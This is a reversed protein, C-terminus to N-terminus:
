AGKTSGALLLQIAEFEVPKVLHHDIGAAASRQRDAEQGWGSLAVLTTEHGEPQERIRRAVEYGDIDPMGIDLLILSPRYKRVAELAPIGGHVVQVDAGMCKLLTGLTDAADRNDDVVLVRRQRIAVSHRTGEGSGAESDQRTPLPLRVVFESGTGPGASVVDVSGGHLGVLSRALTLGIGLGGQTRAQATDLQAFMDFVRAQMDLPIGMGNDRVSVIATAGERRVSLGIRGGEATYKAANNLLNTIVQALRVPDADLVLSEAPLDVDLRHGGAEIIPTSTEVASRAVEALDCSVKRLEIKGRTIRSVEMLDDVLRVMHNVQRGMMEVIRDVAGSPTTLRLIHLSNRLPALPNRLEHALTALFEDKRRNMDLLTEAAERRVRAMDLHARVRALLERASFPKVLYDNAGAQMGEVRAEEGARASLLIVPLTRTGEADRLAQLLGFGDLRPMMVDALVLDPLQRRVADLAAQGDAVAEVDGVPALLRRVYDRMDGNDDAWVIRPRPENIPMGPAPADGPLVDGAPKADPLWQLAEQVFHESTFSSFIAQRNAAIRDPPLHENGKPLTVTFTSGAGPVSSVEVSGGHLKALERVLALGIGTGEHTRALSSEVRGFREFIHALQDGAIGVGTDRVWLEVNAGADRTGIEIEGELTFKLANSLLNFVIKEFWDRDVYVAEGPTECRVALRLGAREIASRFVSALEGTLDALDTARYSAHIRGAEIRSFDLLTNVLKQLRLANRRLMELREREAPGTAEALADEIPGLILTLPTRLEHSVNSFFATKARDLEALEEARKREVEYARANAIATAIQTTLLEVFGRYSEDWQM